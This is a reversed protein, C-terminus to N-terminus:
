DCTGAFLPARLDSWRKSRFTSGGLDSCPCACCRVLAPDALARFPRTNGDIDRRHGPAQNRHALFYRGDHCNPHGTSPFGSGSSVRSHSAYTRRSAVSGKVRSTTRLCCPPGLTRYPPTSLRGAQHCNPNLDPCDTAKAVVGATRKRPCLRVNLSLPPRPRHV